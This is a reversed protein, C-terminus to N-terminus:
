FCLPQAAFWVKKSRVGELSNVYGVKPLESFWWSLCAKPHPYTITELLSSDKYWFGCGSNEGWVKLPEFCGHNTDFSGGSVGQFSDMDRVLRCKQTSAKIFKGLNSINKPESSSLTQLDKSIVWRDLFICIKVEGKNGLSEADPPWFFSIPSFEHQAVHM